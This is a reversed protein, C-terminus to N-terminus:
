RHRVPSYRLRCCSSLVHFSSFSFFSSRKAFHGDVPCRIRLHLRKKIKIKSVVVRREELFCLQVGRRMEKPSPSRCCGERWWRRRRRTWGVSRDDACKLKVNKKKEAKGRRDTAGSSPSIERRGGSRRGGKMTTSTVGQRHQQQPWVINPNQQRPLLQHHYHNNNSTRNSFSTFRNTPNEDDKKKNKRGGVGKASPRKNRLRIGAM